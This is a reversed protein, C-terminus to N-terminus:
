EKAEQLIIESIVTRAVDLEDDDLLALSPYNTFDGEGIAKLVAQAQTFSPLITEARGHIQVLWEYLKALTSFDPTRMKCNPCEAYHPEREMDVDLKQQCNPCPATPNQQGMISMFKNVATKIEEDNFNTGNSSSM